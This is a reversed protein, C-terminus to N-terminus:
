VIKNKNIVKSAIKICYELFIYRNKGIIIKDLNHIALKFETKIEVDHRELGFVPCGLIIHPVTEDKAPDCISPSNENCRFRNLYQSFGGHGTLIQTTISTPVIKRVVRYAAVADSFFLKTIGQRKLAKTGKTGNTLRGCGSAESSSRFPLPRLPTKTKLGVVAEKALHDARENGELGAHAKIWFLGAYGGIGSM